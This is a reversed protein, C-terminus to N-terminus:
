DWSEVLGKLEFQAAEFRQPFSAGWGLREQAIKRVRELRDAFGLLVLEVLSRADNSLAEFDTVEFDELIFSFRRSASEDPLVDVADLYEGAEDVLEVRQLDGLRGQDCLKKGYDVLGNHVVAWLFTSFKAGRDDEFRRLALTFLFDAEAKLEEFPQGSNLCAKRVQKVLLGEMQRYVNREFERIDPLKTRGFSTATAHAAEM